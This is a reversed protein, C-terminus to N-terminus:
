RFIDHEGPPLRAFAPDRALVSSLTRATPWDKSAVIREARRQWRPLLWPSAAELCRRTAAALDTRTLGWSEYFHLYQVIELILYLVFGAFSPAVYVGGGGDHPAHLIPTTGNVKTRTDFCWADGSSDGGIPVLGPVLSDTVFVNGEAVIEPSDIEFVTLLVRAPTGTEIWRRIEPPWSNRPGTPADFLGARHMEVYSRPPTFDWATKMALAIDM